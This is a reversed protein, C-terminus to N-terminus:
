QVLVASSGSTPSGNVLTSYNSSFGSTLTTSGFTLYAFEIDYAVLINYNVPGSFAFTVSATPLYYSGELLTNWSPSGLITAGATDRPDQFFLIGAYTGSVPAVLSVGGSTFSSFSFQIGGSPGYNYFTVGAGNVTTGLDITL